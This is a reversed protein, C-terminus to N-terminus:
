HKMKLTESLNESNEPQLHMDQHMFTSVYKELFFDVMLLFVWNLSFSFNLSDLYFPLWFLCDAWVIRNLFINYEFIKFNMNKRSLWLWSRHWVCQTVCSTFQIVEVEILINARTVVEMWSFPSWIICWLFERVPPMKYMLKAIVFCYFPMDQLHALTQLVDQYQSTWRFQWM